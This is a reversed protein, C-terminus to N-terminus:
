AEVIRLNYIGHYVDDAKDLHLFGATKEGLVNKFSCKIDVNKASTLPIYLDIGVTNHPPILLAHDMSKTGKIEENLAELGISIVPLDSENKLHCPIKVWDTKKNIPIVLQKHHELDGPMPLSEVKKGNKPYLTIFSLKAVDIPEKGKKKVAGSGRNVYFASFSLTLTGAYILLGTFIMVWQNIHYANFWANRMEGCLIFVFALIFPFVAMLILMRFLFQNEDEKKFKFFFYGGALIFPLMLVLLNRIGFGVLLILVCIVAYLRSFWEEEYLNKM